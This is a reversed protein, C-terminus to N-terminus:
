SLGFIKTVWSVLLFTISAPCFPLGISGWDWSGGGKAWPQIWAQGRFLTARLGGGESGGRVVLGLVNM